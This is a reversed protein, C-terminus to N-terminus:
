HKILILIKLKSIPDLFLNICYLKVNKTIDDGFDLTTGM